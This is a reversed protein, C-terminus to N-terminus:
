REEGMNMDWFASKVGHFVWFQSPDLRTQCVGLSWWGYKLRLSGPLVTVYAISTPMFCPPCFLLLPFYIGTFAAPVTAFSPRPLFSLINTKYGILSSSHHLPVAFAFPFLFCCGLLVPYLSPGLHAQQLSRTKYRMTVVTETWDPQESEWEDVTVWNSSQLALKTM